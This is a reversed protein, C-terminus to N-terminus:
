KVLTINGKLFIEKGDLFAGELYYAFVQPSVAKGKATGDWGSTMAELGNGSDFVLEGWRDYIKLHVWDIAEGRVFLLDNSNDGNPSFINAVWVDNEGCLFQWDEDHIVVLIERENCFVHSCCYVGYNPNFRQSNKM